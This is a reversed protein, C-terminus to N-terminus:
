GFICDQKNEQYSKIFVQQFRTIREFKFEDQYFLNLICLNIHRMYQLCCNM